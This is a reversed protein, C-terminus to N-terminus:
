PKVILKGVSARNQMQDFAQRTEHLPFVGGIQAKLKHDRWLDFLIRMGSIMAGPRNRLFLPLFYGTIMKGSTLLEVIGVRSLDGSSVGYVVARGMDRLCERFAREFAKGGVSELLVDIGRETTHTKVHNVWDADSYNVAHAGFAAIVACKEPSSATGIVMAGKHLAIQVALLGVGGAAAQILVREGAQVQGCDEVCHLATLGQIFLAVAVEAPIDEPCEVLGSASAAVYDAFAGSNVSALVRQGVTWKKVNEGVAAIRGICERGLIYPLDVREAYRGERILVDSYNLGGAEVQLLVQSKGYVPTAVEAIQMVDPGGLQTIQIAKM